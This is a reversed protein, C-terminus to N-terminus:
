CEQRVNSAVAQAWFKLQEKMDGASRRDVWNPMLPASRKVLWAESLYPRSVKDEDWNAESRVKLGPIINVVSPNLDEKNFKFGLDMFGQLEEIELDSMTKWRSLTRSMDGSSCSHHSENDEKIERRPTRYRQIYPSPTITKSNHQLTLVRSPNLSAQGMFRRSGRRGEELADNWLETVSYSEKDYPNEIDKNPSDAKSEKHVRHRGVSTGQMMSKSTGQPLLFESTSALTQQNSQDMEAPQPKGICTPLSPTRLFNSSVACYDDMAVETISSSRKDGGPSRVAMETSSSCLPTPDSACRVMSRRRHFLNNFFWNEELLEIPEVKEDRSTSFSGQSDFHEM